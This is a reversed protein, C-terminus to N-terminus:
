NEFTSTVLREILRALLAHGLDNPHVGDDTFPSNRPWVGGLTGQETDSFLASADVLLSDGDAINRAMDYALRWGLVRRESM